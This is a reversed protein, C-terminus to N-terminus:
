RMVLPTIKPTVMSRFYISPPQSLASRFQGGSQGDASRFSSAILLKPGFRNPLSLHRYTRKAGRIGFHFLDHHNRNKVGM